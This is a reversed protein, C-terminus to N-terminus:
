LEGNMQACGGAIAPLDQKADVFTGHNQRLRSM